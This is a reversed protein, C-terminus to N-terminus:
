VSKGMALLGMAAVVERNSDQLNGQAIFDLQSVVEQRSLALLITEANNRTIVMNATRYNSLFRKIPLLVQNWFIGHAPTFHQSRSLQINYQAEILAVESELIILLQNSTTADFIGDLAGNMFVCRRPMVVRQVADNFAQEVIGSRERQGLVGRYALHALIVAAQADEATLFSQPNTPPGDQASQLNASTGDESTHGPTEIWTEAESTSKNESLGPVESESDMLSQIGPAAEQLHMKYVQPVNFSVTKMRKSSLLPKRLPSVRLAPLEEGTWHINADSRSPSVCRLNALGGSAVVAMVRRSGASARAHEESKEFMSLHDPGAVYKAGTSIDVNTPSMDLGSDKRIRTTAKLKSLAKSAPAARNCKQAPLRPRLAPSLLTCHDPKAQIQLGHEVTIVHAAITAKELPRKTTGAAQHDDKAIKVSATTVADKSAITACIHKPRPGSSKRATRHKEPAGRKRKHPSSFESLIIVQQNAATNATPNSRGKAMSSSRMSDVNRKPHRTHDHDSNITDDCLKEKQSRKYDKAVLPIQEKTSIVRSHRRSRKIRDALSDAKLDDEHRNKDRQHQGQLSECLSGEAEEDQEEFSSNPAHKRNKKRASTRKRKVAAFPDKDEENETESVWYSSPKAAPKTIKRASGKKAVPSTKTEPRIDKLRNKVASKSPSFDYDVILTGQDPDLAANEDHDDEIFLSEEEGCDGFLNGLTGYDEFLCNFGGRLSLSAVAQNPTKSISDFDTSAMDEENHSREIGASLGGIGSDPNKTRILLISVISSLLPITICVCIWFQQLLAAHLAPHSIYSISSNLHM